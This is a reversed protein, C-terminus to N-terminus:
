RFNALLFPLSRKWRTMKKAVDNRPHRLSRGKWDPEAQDWEKADEVDVWEPGVEKARERERQRDREVRADLLEKRAKREAIDMDIFFDERAEEFLGGERFESYDEEAICIDKSLYYFILWSKRYWSTNVYRTLGDADAEDGDFDDSDEAPLAAHKGPQYIASTRCYSRRDRGGDGRLPEGDVFRAFGVVRKRKSPVAIRLERDTEEEIHNQLHLRFQIWRRRWYVRGQNDGISRCAIIKDRFDDFVVRCEASGEFDPLWTIWGTHVTAQSPAMTVAEVVEMDKPAM